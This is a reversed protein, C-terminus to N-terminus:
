DDSGLLDGEFIEDAHIEERHMNEVFTDRLYDPEYTRLTLQLGYVFDADACIKFIYPRAFSADWFSMMAVKNLDGQVKYLRKGPEIDFQFADHRDICM